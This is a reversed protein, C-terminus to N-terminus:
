RNEGPVAGLFTLDQSSSEVDTREIQSLMNNSVELPVPILLVGTYYDTDYEVGFVMHQPLNAEPPPETVGVRSIRYDRTLFWRPEPFVEKQTNSDLMKLVPFFEDLSFIRDAQFGMDELRGRKVTRTSQVEYLADISLFIEEVPNSKRDLFGLTIWPGFRTLLVGDWDKRADIELLEFPSVIQRSWQGPFDHYLQLFKQRSVLLPFSPEVREFLQKFSEISEASREKFTIDSRISQIKKQALVAQRDREWIRGLQPRKHNQWKLYHGIGREFINGYSELFLIGILAALFVGALWPRRVAASKM